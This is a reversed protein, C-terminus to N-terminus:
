SRCGVGQVRCGVVLMGCGVGKVRCGVGNVRCGVGLVREMHKKTRKEKHIVRLDLTSHDM